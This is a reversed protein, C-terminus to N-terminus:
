PMRKLGATHELLASICALVFWRARSIAHKVRRETFTARNPRTVAGHRM